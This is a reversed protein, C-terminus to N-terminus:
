PKFKHTAKTFLGTEALAETERVDGTGVVMVLKKTMKEVKTPKATGEGSILEVTTPVVKERFSVVEDRHRYHEKGRTKIANTKGAAGYNENSTRIAERWRQSQEATVAPEVEPREKRYKTFLLAVRRAVEVSNDLLPNDNSIDKAPLSPRVKYYRETGREEEIIECERNRQNKREQYFGSLHSQLREEQERNKELQIEDPHIEGSQIDKPDFTIPHNKIELRLAELLVKDKNQAIFDLRQKAQAEANRKNYPEDKEFYGRAVSAPKFNDQAFKELVQASEAELAAKEAFEKSLVEKYAQLKFAKFKDLILARFMASRSEQPMEAIAVVKSKSVDAKEATTKVEAEYKAIKEDIAKVEEESLRIQPSLGAVRQAQTPDVLLADVYANVADLQKATYSLTNTLRSKAILKEVDNKLEKTPIKLLSLDTMKQLFAEREKALPDAVEASQAAEVNRKFVKKTKKPNKEEAKPETEQAAAKPSDAKPSAPAEELTAQEMQQTVEAVAAVAATQAAEVAKKTEAEKLVLPELEPAESDTESESIEFGAAVYAAIAEEKSQEEEPQVAVVEEDGSSEQQEPTENESYFEDDSAAHMIVEPVEPSAEPTEVLDMAETSPTEQELTSVEPSEVQSNKAKRGKKKAM